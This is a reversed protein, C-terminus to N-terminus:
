TTEITIEGMCVRVIIGIMEHINQDRHIYGQVGIKLLKEAMQGDFTSTVGIMRVGKYKAAFLEMLPLGGRYNIEKLDMILLDPRYTTCLSEIDNSFTCSSVFTIGKLMVCILDCFNDGFLLNHMVMMATVPTELVRFEKEM